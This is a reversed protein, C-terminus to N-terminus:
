LQMDGLCVLINSGKIALQLNGMAKKTESLLLKGWCSRSDDLGSPGTYPQRSVIIKASTAQEAYGTPHHQQLESCM